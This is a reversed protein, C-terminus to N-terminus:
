KKKPIMGLLEIVKKLGAFMSNITMVPKVAHESLFATTGKLTNVTKRTSDLIPKVENQLMNLLLALQVVLIVLAVGIIFSELVLIIIFIDRVHSTTSADSRALFVIGIILAVLIVVGVLTFWNLRSRSSNIPKNGASDQEKEQPINKDEMLSKM